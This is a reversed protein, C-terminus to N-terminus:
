PGKEFRSIEMIYHFGDGEVRCRWKPQYFNILTAIYTVEIQCKVVVRRLGLAELWEVALESYLRAHPKDVSVTDMWATRTLSYKNYWHEYFSHYFQNSGLVPVETGDELVTCREGATLILTLTDLRLRM